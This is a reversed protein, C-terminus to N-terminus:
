AKGTRPLRATKGAAPFCLWNPGTKKREVTILFLVSSRWTAFVSHFRLILSSM